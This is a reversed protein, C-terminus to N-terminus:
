MSEEEFTQDLLRFIAVFVSGIVILFSSKIIVPNVGIASKQLDGEFIDDKFPIQVFTTM